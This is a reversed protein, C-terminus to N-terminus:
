GDDPEPRIEVVGNSHVVVAHDAYRFEVLRDNTGNGEVLRDVAMPDVTDVLPELETPPTECVHAMAEVVAMSPAIADGDFQAVYTGTSADYDVSVPGDSREDPV